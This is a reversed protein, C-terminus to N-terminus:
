APVPTPEPLAPSRSIRLALLAALLFLTAEVAFITAYAAADTVLARMADLGAAGCFMGLGFGAAQALGFLGMRSGERRERGAGALSFISALAAGAFVGNSVGYLSIIVRLPWDPAFFAGLAIAALCLASAICGAIALGVVAQARGRLLRGLVAATILGVLIGSRHFSALTTSEGVTYGFIAASFPEMVLEQMNFAFMSAFVFITFTRAAPERLIEAFAGTMAGLSGLGKRERPPPALHARREIGWLGVIGLAIAALSVVTAVEVLREYSFPDLAAGAVGATIALGAIMLLWVITAAPARREPAVTVAILAFLLTGAAGVGVGVLLYAGFAAAYGLALDEAMLSVSMAALVGALGLVCLGGIIWPTRRGMVDSTYGFALRSLQATYYAGILVGPAMALLSLEQIMLRPLTTIPLVTISVIAAQVIGFRVITFWAAVASV